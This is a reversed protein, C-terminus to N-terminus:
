TLTRHRHGNACMQWNFLSVAMKNLRANSKATAIAAPDNDIGVVRGAGFRKAALALIGSGPGLVVVSWGRKWRRTLEELLRLSMATTCHEGTGFAASARIMIHSRGKHRSLRSVSIGPASSVMLRKEITIPESNTVSFQELWSRPLQEVRGGFTAVLARSTKQSSSVIEIQLRKRGPIRIIV